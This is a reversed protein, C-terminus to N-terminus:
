AIGTWLGHWDAFMGAQDFDREAKARNAAGIRARADPDALLRALMRAMVAEDRSGVYAANEAALMTRVDGVDTAVVPLGSAMAEIVSLPM